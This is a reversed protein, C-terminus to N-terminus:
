DLTQVYDWLYTKKLVDIIEDDTRKDFPDLNESVTGSFLFPAQPIYGIKSRLTHLGISKIDVGDIEVHGDSLEILRFLSQLISSKGAGTRGVIGVKMGQEIEFSVGNVAPELDDRYKMTMNVFKIKGQQPWDTLREDGPKVLADEQKIETLAIM